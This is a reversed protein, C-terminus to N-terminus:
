QHSRGWEAAEKICEELLGKSMAEQYVPEAFPRPQINIVKQVKYKKQKTWELFKPSVKAREWDDHSRFYTNRKWTRERLRPRTEWKSYWTRGGHELVQPVTVPSKSERWIRPGVFIAELTTDISYIIFNKLPSNPRVKPPQGPKSHKAADTKGQPRLKHKMMLRVMAAFKGLAKMAVRKEHRLLKKRDFEIWGGLAM